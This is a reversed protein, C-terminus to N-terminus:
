VFIQNTIAPGVVFATHGNVELTLNGDFESYERVCVQAGPVLGLGQLHRLFAPDAGNVRKVTGAEGTRLTALPRTDEAPMTLDETPIPDGHPDRVPHGMAAAIRREFDESIVHELREAEEHVEDWSYGLTQVLWAELLRHHRIVELAAREGQSTLTVGQHKKYLILPPEASALRQIMGTVSAPAIGLHAALDNTSAPTGNASLNYIHKLYDQISQTLVETM